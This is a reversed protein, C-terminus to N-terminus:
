SPLDIRFHFLSCLKKGMQLLQKLHVSSLSVLCHHHANDLLHAVNEEDVMRNPNECLNLRNGQLKEAVKECDEVFWEDAHVLGGVDIAANGVKRGEYIVHDGHYFLSLALINGSIGILGHLGEYIKTLSMLVVEVLEDVLYMNM